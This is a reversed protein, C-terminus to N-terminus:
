IKYFNMHWLWVHWMYHLDVNKNSLDLSINWIVDKNFDLSLKLLRNYLYACGLFLNDKSIICRDAKLVLKYALWNLVPGWVLNRSIEPAYYVDRFVLLNRLTFLLKLKDKTKSCSPPITEWLSISGMLWKIYPKTDNGSNCMHRSAGSDTWSLTDDQMVDLSTNM